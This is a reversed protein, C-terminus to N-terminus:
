LSNNYKFVKTEMYIMSYKKLREENALIFCCFFLLTSVKKLTNTLLLTIPLKHQSM